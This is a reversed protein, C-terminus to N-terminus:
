GTKKLEGSKLKGIYSDLSAKVKNSLLLLALINPIGMGLIMLDSFDLVNLGKTVAGAFLSALLLVKYALAYKETFLFSMCREGYYSWSIVTSYAFLLVAVALFYPFIHSQSAFAQATLAAGQKNQIMEAYLPNSMDFAGTIVIVLATMTCVIITDIFPGLLAVAGEEVPHEVKAASHAIAASGMGAENSFAARQFGTVLAGIFGGYGAEWSFASRFILYFADDITSFNMGLIYLCIVVYLGCMLPVIRSATEAIRKIGGIIVVAVFLVFLVGYIVEWGQLAPFVKKIAGLSQNVQFAGGGGLSGGICLLAFAVSLVRGLKGLSLRGINLEKFGRELYEMPGGMVHGDHRVERYIQGLTCEVFKSTMGLFGAVLMWFVAGPGGVSVAIAVGAINGLGVTASLATALAKFHSVEGKSGPRDYKGRLVDLSHKFLRVNVFGMRFTLFTAGLILWLVVFPMGLINYFFVSAVWGNAVGFWGDLTSFFNASALLPWFLVTLGTLLVQTITKM